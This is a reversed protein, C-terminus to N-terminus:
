KEHRSKRQLWAGLLMLAMGLTLLVPIPWKLQGTQTLKDPVSPQASPKALEKAPPGITPEPSPKPAEPDVKAFKEDVEIDKYVAGDEINPLTVLYPDLIYAENGEAVDCRVVLYLGPKLGGFTLKGNRDTVGTKDPVAVKALKKALALKDSATAADWDCDYASYADVVTYTVDLTAADVTKDAILTLAYTDGALYRTTGDDEHYHADLTISCTGGLPAAFVVTQFAFGLLVAMLVACIKRIGPLSM